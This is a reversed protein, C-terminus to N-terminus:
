VIVCDEMIEVIDHRDYDIYHLNFYPDLGYCNNDVVFREGKSDVVVTGEEIPTIFDLFYDFEDETLPKQGTLPEKKSFVDDYTYDYYMDDYYRDYYDDYGYKPTCYHYEFNKNSYFIGDDEIFKGVLYLEENTDMFCLKSGALEELMDLTRQNKYFEHNLDYLVSVYDRIFLQTDNLETKGHTTTLSIIGNHAMGLDTRITTSRLDKTKSSIPYPHCNGKDVNGQTSIRFHMVLAKEKLDYMKGLKEIYDYFKDFTMFGKVINVKGRDVYMLGAGDSNADFMDKMVEKSPMEVGAPKSAIVCM